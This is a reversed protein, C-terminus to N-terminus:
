SVNWFWEEKCFTLLTPSALCFIHIFLRLSWLLGAKLVSLEQCCAGNKASNWLRRTKYVCGTVIFTYLFQWYYYGALGLASVRNRAPCLFFLALCLFGELLLGGHKEAVILLICLPWSYNVWKELQSCCSIESFLIMSSFYMKKTLYCWIFRCDGYFCLIVLHVMYLNPNKIWESIGVVTVLIPWASTQTKEENM